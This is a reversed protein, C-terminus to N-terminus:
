SKRFGSLREMDRITKEAFRLFERGEKRAAIEEKRYFGLKVANQNGKPAGSGPAGGHMRCRRKGNVPPTKCPTGSRTRAGCQRRAPADGSSGDPARDQPRGSTRDSAHM